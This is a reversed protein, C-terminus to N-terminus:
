HKPTAEKHVLEAELLKWVITFLSAQLGNTLVRTGLGRGLLGRWGDQRLVQSMCSGFTLRAVYTGGESIVFLREWPLCALGPESFVHGPMIFSHADAPVAGPM